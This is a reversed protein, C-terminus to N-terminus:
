MLSMRMRQISCPVQNSYRGRIRAIESSNRLVSKFVFEPFVQRCDGCEFYDERYNVVGLDGYNCEQILCGTGSRKVLNHGMTIREDCVNDQLLHSLYSYEFNREVQCYSFIGCKICIWLVVGHEGMKPIHIRMM